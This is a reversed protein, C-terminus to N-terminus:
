RTNFVKSISTTSSPIDCEKGKDKRKISASSESIVAKEWTDMFNSSESVVTDKGKDKRKIPESNAHIPM